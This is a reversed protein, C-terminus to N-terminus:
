GDRSTDAGHGTRQWGGALTPMATHARPHHAAWPHRAAAHTLPWVLVHAHVSDYLFRRLDNGIFDHQEAMQGPLAWWSGAAAVDENSRQWESERAPTTSGGGGDGGNGSCCGVGGASASERCTTSNRMSSRASPTFSCRRQNSASANADPRGEGVGADATRLRRKVLIEYCGRKHERVM